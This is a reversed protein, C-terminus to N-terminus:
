QAEMLYVYFLAAKDCWTQNLAFGAQQAFTAFEEVEYKYSNETHIPEHKAFFIDNGDIRIVQDERSVLYMEIRGAVPNYFSHYAFKETIFNAGLETNMRSLVNLEFAATAGARDNYAAELIPLPNKRDVGVLLKGGRGLLTHINKLIRQQTPPEFNGITSGPFFAIRQFDPISDPLPITQLFDACIATVHISPNETAIKKAHDVLYDGSIDIPIVHSGTPLFRLLNRIKRCHGSGLEFLIIPESYTGVMESAYTELIELEANTQYYEPQQCIEDFLESGRKDYLFKSAIRKPEAKLGDFVYQRFSAERPFCDLLDLNVHGGLKKRVYMKM